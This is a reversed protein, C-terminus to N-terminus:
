FNGLLLILGISEYDVIYDLNKADLRWFKYIYFFSFTEVNINIDSAWLLIWKLFTKTSINKTSWHTFFFNQQQQQPRCFAVDLHPLSSLASSHSFLPMRHYYLLHYYRIFGIFHAMRAEEVREKKKFKKYTCM